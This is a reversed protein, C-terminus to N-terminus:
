LTRLMSTREDSKKDANMLLQWKEFIGKLTPQAWNFQKDMRWTDAAQKIQEATINEGHAWELWQRATKTDWNINLWFYDRIANRLSIAPLKSLEFDVMDPKIKNSKNSDLPTSENPSFSSEDPSSVQSMLNNSEDSKVTDSPENVRGIAAFEPEYLNYRREGRRVKLYGKGELVKIADIVTQHSYGTDEAITLIGPFSVGKENVCLSIYLWVALPSGKLQKIHPKFATSLKVWAVTWVQDLGDRLVITSRPQEIVAAPEGKLLDLAETVYDAQEEM